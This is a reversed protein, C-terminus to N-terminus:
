QGGGSWGGAEMPGDLLQSAESGGNGERVEM